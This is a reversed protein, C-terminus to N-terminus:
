RKKKKIDKRNRREIWEKALYGLFVFAAIWIASLVLLYHNYLYEGDQPVRNTVCQICRCLTDDADHSLYSATLYILGCLVIACSCGRMSRDFHIM